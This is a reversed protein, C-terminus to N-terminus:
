FPTKLGTYEQKALEAADIEDTTQIYIMEVSKGDHKRIIRGSTNRYEKPNLRYGYKNCFSKLSKSFRNTTWNKAGSARLYENKTDDKPLMVNVHEGDADFYVVAWDHFTQGMSALLMRQQISYMPPNIKVSKGTTSLYFRICDALFNIDANWDTESYLADQLDMDFDDRISHTARYDNEDTKEHYYDSFVTYLMRAQVSPDSSTPAFNTTICMKPAMDFPIEYSKNNKPNVIWDGTITDFFFNFDLYQSADDVLVYDTHETVRDYIHPNETLKSDRGHLTVSKMFKRLSKFCFSKGSRGNSESPNDSIRWDMAYVCWARSMKKYRHLLYGIVFIKNILHQKQQDIEEAALLEGDIAFRNRLRYAQRQEDDAFREELRSELEDRWFVRSANILFCFFKSDTSLVEVDYDDSDGDSNSKERIVFSPPLRRVAHPIIEEEWVFRDCKRHVTVSGSQIEWTENAFFLFQRRDDFDTFDLKREPLLDFLGECIRNSNNVLNRLHISLNREIMFNRLYLRISKANIKSVTNDRIRVFSQGSKENKDEVIVFGAHQLHHILYESNIEDRERREKTYTKEWFRMPMATALLDKFARHGPCLEAWDRLDKRPRGRADRYGRLWEPLWVTRIDLYKMALKVGQRVGTEDIDPINYVTEVLREISLYEAEEMRSTEANLWVPCYGLAAVCLADREGSCIVAEPFKKKKGPPGGDTEEPFFEEQMESEFKHVAARLEELGNIYAPPKQGDISFRYSKNFHLPHYIKRFSQRKGDSGTYPCERMFIPYTDTSLTVTTVLEGTKDDKKTRSYWALSLYGYKKCTEAKVLPGLLKLERETFERAEFHFDGEKEGEEAKRRRMEACNAERVDGDTVGYRAALLHIAKPFSLNEERMCIDIANRATADDGFDTVKWVEGFRKMSASPTREDRIRFPKKEVAEPYYYRIVDLGGNTADFIQQTTIM